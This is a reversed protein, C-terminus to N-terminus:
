LVVPHSHGAEAGAQGEAVAGAQREPDVLLRGQGHCGQHAAQAPWLSGGACRGWAPLKSCDPRHDPAHHSSYEPKLYAPGVNYRFRTRSRAKVPQAVTRLPLYEPLGYYAALRSAIEKRQMRM